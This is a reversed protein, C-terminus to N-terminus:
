LNVGLVIKDIVQNIEDLTVVFWEKPVIRKGNDWAISVDLKKGDLLHHITTEFKQASMNFVQYSSVVEVPANLYTTQNEAGKIRNEVTGSTFGIKYLNQISKIEPNSSLSRLVYIFGTSVDVEKVTFPSNDENETIRRGSRYLERSLSRLLLDSKTGNEFVCMLRSNNKGNKEYIEGKSEVYLMVGKLIFFSGEDIQLEKSFPILKRKGETIERHIKRFMSDYADFQQVKKKQARYDPTEIPKIIKSTDLLTAYEEDSLTSSGLLASSGSKLIDAVSFIPTSFPKTELLGVADYEKFKEIKSQDKRIGILRSALGRELLDTGKEPERGNEKYFEVIEIFKEIEPDHRVTNEKRSPEIIEDLM